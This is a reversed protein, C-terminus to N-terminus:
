PMAEMARGSTHKKGIGLAPCPEIFKRTFNMMMAKVEQQIQDLVNVKFRPTGLMEAKDCILNVWACAHM